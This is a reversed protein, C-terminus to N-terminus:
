MNESKKAREHDISEIEKIFLTKNRKLIDLLISLFSPNWISILALNGASVLHRMTHLYFDDITDSAAIDGPVAMVYKMAHRMIYNLYVTDDQFGIPIGSTTFRKQHKVPSISWYASGKMLGPNHTFMSFIWPAIGAQFEQHLARNYPILKNTSSTGSTPEFCWPHGPFLVDPKGAAIEDIYSEFDQYESVPVRERFDELSNISAFDHKRGFKTERATRVLKLLRQMQTRKVNRIGRKYAIYGPLTSCYWAFNVLLTKM